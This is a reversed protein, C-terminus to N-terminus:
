NQLSLRVANIVNNKVRLTIPIGLSFSHMIAEDLLDQKETIFCYLFNSNETISRVVYIYKLADRSVADVKYVDAGSFINPACEVNAIQTAHSYFSTFILFCVLFLKNIM